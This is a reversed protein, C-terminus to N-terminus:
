TAKVAALFNEVEARMTESEARLKDTVEVMRAAMEGTHLAAGSVESIGASVARNGHASENINGVISQTAANQEEVASAITSVVEDARVITDHVTALSAAANRSTAQIGSVQDAIEETARATQSALHKVENAVVSFGKGAEGARQAEISANLALLNTQAAIEGILTVIEGIKEAAEALQGMTSNLGQIGEVAERTIATSAGVSRSIERGSAGLQETSSAVSEVNAAAQEGAVAVQQAQRETEEAVASLTHATERVDEVSHNVVALVRTAVVGFEETLRQRMQARELLLRDAAQKQAELQDARIMSEKFVEVARAMDGIEDQKDVLPVGVTKDGKSLHAMVGGLRDLPRVIRFRTFWYFFVALLLLLLGNFLMVGGVTASVTWTADEVRDASDKHEQRLLAGLRDLAALASAEDVAARGHAKDAPEKRALAETVQPMAREYAAVLAMVTKLAEQEDKSAGATLYAPEIERLRALDRTVAQRLLPDDTLLYDHFHQSLGGFGLHQRLDSLLMLRRALGTDFNRWVSGIEAVKAFSAVTGGIGAALLLAMLVSILIGVLRLRINSIFWAMGAAGRGLANLDQSSVHM